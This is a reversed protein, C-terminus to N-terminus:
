FMGGAGLPYDHDLFEETISLIGGPNLVRHLEALGRRQDPIEPLVTVLYAGDM